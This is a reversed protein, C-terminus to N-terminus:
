IDRGIYGGLVKAEIHEFGFKNEHGSVRIKRRNKTLPKVEM